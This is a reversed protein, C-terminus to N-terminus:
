EYYGEIPFLEFVMFMLVSLYISLMNMVVGYLLILYHVVSSYLLMFVGCFLLYKSNLEVYLLDLLPFVWRHHYFDYYQKNRSHFGSATVSLYALPNSNIETNQYSLQKFQHKESKLIESLYWKLNKCKM